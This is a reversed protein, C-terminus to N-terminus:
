IPRPLRANHEYKRHPVTPAPRSCSAHGLDFADPLTPNPLPCASPGTSVPTSETWTDPPLQNNIYPIFLLGGLERGFTRRFPIQNWGLSEYIGQREALKNTSPEGSIQFPRRHQSPHLCPSKTERAQRTSVSRRGRGAHLSAEDETGRTCCVDGDMPRCTALPTVDSPQM